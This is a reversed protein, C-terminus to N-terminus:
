EGDGTEPTIVVIVAKEPDLYERAYTDVEEVTMTQYDEVFNRAWELQRPRRRSGTLVNMWYGNTRRYKALSTQVPVLVRNFLETDVGQRRLKGVIAMVADKIRETDKPDVKVLAMLYGYNEYTDSMNSGAWPSYAGGIRERIEERLCEDVVQALLNVRRARRIDSYADATPWFLSLSGRDIKTPVSFARTGPRAFTVPRIDPTNEKAAPLSGFYRSVLDVCADSDIDGVISIEVPEMDRQRAVWARVDDATLQNFADIGPVGFRHDGDALLSPIKLRWVGDATRSMERYNEAYRKRALRMAEPRYGPDTFYARAVRLTLELDEPITVGTFALHSDEAKFGIHVSRGALISKLEERSHKGLGGEIMIMEALRGLGPKDEPLVSVGLGFRLNIQIEKAKFDTKKLNLRVGNDFDIREIGLDEITERRIPSGAGATVPAYAFEVKETVAPPDVEVAASEAHVTIIEREDARADGTVTLLTHDAEWAKRFAALIAANDLRTVYDKLLDRNQGPSLFVTEQSVSRLMAGALARSDRTAAKMVAVDLSQLYRAKQEDIEAPTFGFTLAKRLEREALALMDRWHEPEGALSVGAHRAWGYAHYSYASGSTFVAGERKALKQLRRNLIGEGIDRAVLYQRYEASDAPEDARTVVGISVDTNKAEADWYTFAKVGQHDFDGFEPVPQEPAGSTMDSFAKEIHPKLKEFTTDGVLILTMREPRYWTNYFFDFDPKKLHEIVDKEGIPMRRSFRADDYIFTFLAKRIRWDVSDRDGMEALIVGRERDIETELLSLRRAYDGLLLFAKDLTGPDTNPLDLSYVTQDFSTFANVDGGFNMGITQFYKVLEGPDFHESGNFAMHELFHAIGRHEDKEHISGAAVRLYAFLRDRPEKAPYFVYRLGNPFAGFVANPDPKLDSREHPFGAGAATLLIGPILVLVLRRAAYHSFFRRM